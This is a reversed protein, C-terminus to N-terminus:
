GKYILHLLVSFSVSTPSSGWKGKGASKAADELEVLHAVEPSSRAGERRVTM